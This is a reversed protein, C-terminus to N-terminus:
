NRKWFNYLETFEPFTALFNTGRRRDHEDVFAVFDKHEIAVRGTVDKKTLMLEHLRKFKDAEWVAFGSNEEDTTLNAYAFDVQEKVKDAWSNPMIFIAQHPPYRLYPTDLILPHRRGDVGGYKKKIALVDKM